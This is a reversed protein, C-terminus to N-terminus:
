GIRERRRGTLRVLAGVALLAMCSPEPVQAYQAGTLTITYNWADEHGSPSWGTMASGGGPGTPGVPGGGPFIDGGVSTPIYDLDTIGVLYLGEPLSAVLPDGVQIGADFPGGTTSSDDDAAIGFGAANLIYLKTDDPGMGDTRDSAVNASFGGGALIKILFLDKDETAADSLGTITTLAGTGVTVQATGPLDGADGGGDTTEDWTQAVTTTGHLARRDFGHRHFEDM